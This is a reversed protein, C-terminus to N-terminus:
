GDQPDRLHLGFGFQDLDGATKSIGANPVFHFFGVYGMDDLGVHTGIPVMFRVM